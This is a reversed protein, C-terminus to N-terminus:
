TRNKNARENAFKEKLNSSSKLVSNATREFNSAPALKENLYGEFKPGFLTEPRIFSIMKPDNIWKAVKVDIVRKFDEMTYGENLRAMILKQNTKSSARFKSDAAKNLYEIVFSVRWDIAKVPLQQPSLKEKWKDYMEIAGPSILSIDDAPNNGLHLKCLCQIIMGLDENYVDLEDADKLFEEPDIQLLKQM